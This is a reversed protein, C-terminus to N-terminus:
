AARRAASRSQITPGPYLKPRTCEPSFGHFVLRSGQFVMSVLWFGHFARFSRSTGVRPGLRGKLHKSPPPNLWRNKFLQSFFIVRIIWLPNLFNTAACVLNGCWLKGVRWDRPWLQGEHCLMLFNDNKTLLAPDCSVKMVCCSFTIMKRWYRPTVVSMWSVAHSLSWKEDSVRPWLQGEHCLM